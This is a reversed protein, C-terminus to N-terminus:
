ITWLIGLLFGSFMNMLYTGKLILLHANWAIPYFMFALILKLFCSILKLWWHKEFLYNWALRQNWYVAGLVWYVFLKHAWLILIKYFYINAEHSSYQDSGSMIRCTDSCSFQWPRYWNWNVSFCYWIWNVNVCFVKWLIEIILECVSTSGQDCTRMPWLLGVGILFFIVSVVSAM